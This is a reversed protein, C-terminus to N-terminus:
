NAELTALRIILRHARTARCIAARYTVWSQLNTGLPQWEAHLSFTANFKVTHSPLEGDHITFSNGGRGVFCRKRIEWEERIRSFM